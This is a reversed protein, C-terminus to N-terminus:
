ANVSKMGFPFGQAFQGHTPDMDLIVVTDGLGLANAFERVQQILYIRNDYQEAESKCIETAAITAITTDVVWSVAAVNPTIRNPNFAPLDNTINNNSTQEM